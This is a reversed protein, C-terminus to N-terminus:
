STANWSGRAWCAAFCPARWSDPSTLGTITTDITDRILKAAEGKAEESDTLSTYRAPTLMDLPQKNHPLLPVGAFSPTAPEISLAEAFEQM